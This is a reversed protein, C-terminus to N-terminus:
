LIEEENEKLFFFFFLVKNLTFNLLFIIFNKNKVFIEVHVAFFETHLALSTLTHTSKRLKCLVEKLLSEADGIGHAGGSYRM